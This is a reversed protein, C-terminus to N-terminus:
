QLPIPKIMSTRWIISSNVFCINFLKTVFYASFYNKFSESPLGDKGVEKNLKAHELAFDVEYLNISENM